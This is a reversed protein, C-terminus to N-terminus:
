ASCNGGNGGNGMEWIFLAQLDKVLVRALLKGYKDVSV